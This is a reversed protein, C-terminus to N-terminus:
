IKFCSVYGTITCRSEVWRCRGWDYRSSLYLDFFMRSKADLQNQFGTLKLRGYHNAECCDLQQALADFLLKLCKGIGGQVLDRSDLKSEAFDVTSASTPEPRFKDAPELSGVHTEIAQAVGRAQAVTSSNSRAERESEAQLNKKIKIKEIGDMVNKSVQKLKDDNCDELNLGLFGLDIQALTANTRIAVESASEPGQLDHKFQAFTDAISDFSPRLYEFVRDM